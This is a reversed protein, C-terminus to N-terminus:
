AEAWAVNHKSPSGVGGLYPCLVGVNRGMYIIALRDGMEAEASSTQKLKKM